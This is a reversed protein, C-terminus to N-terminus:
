RLLLKSPASCWTRTVCTHWRGVVLRWVCEAILCGLPM